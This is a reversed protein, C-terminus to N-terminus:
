TTAENWAELRVAPTDPSPAGGAPRKGCIYPRRPPAFCHRMGSLQSAMWPAIRDRCAVLKTAVRDKRMSPDDLASLKAEEEALLRLLMERQM